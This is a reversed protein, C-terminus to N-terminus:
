RGLRKECIQEGCGHTGAPKNPDAQAWRAACGDDRGVRCLEDRRAADIAVAVLGVAVAGPLCRENGSFCEGRNGGVEAAVRDRGLQEPAVEDRLADVECREFAAAKVNARRQEFVRALARGAAAHFCVEAGAAVVGHAAVAADRGPDDFAALDMEAVGDAAYISQM